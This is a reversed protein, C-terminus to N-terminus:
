KLGARMVRMQQIEKSQSTIINQVLTRVETHEIYGEVSHAMMIAMMHHMIMDELFAKDIEAGSLKSLDRMMQHYTGSPTYPTGYWTQYWTKMDAIEKEQATVINELLTKIEPTTAGRALVERATDVAEQHHPIMEAIFEKESGVMMASMGGGMGMSSDTDGMWTGDPMVHGGMMGKREDDAKFATERTTQKDAYNDPTLTAYAYGGLAGVGICFLVVLIPNNKEM